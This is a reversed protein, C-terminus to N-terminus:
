RRSTSRSGRCPAAPQEADCITDGIDVDELGVVAVIDGATPRKSKSAASSTSCTCPPSRASCSRRRRGADPGGAPRTSITGSYIRGIAIRGVYDSWDLTTVLMQLPADADVEPGPIQELVLDLLPQM